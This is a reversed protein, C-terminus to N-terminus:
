VTAYPPPPCESTMARAIRSLNAIDRAYIDEVADSAHGTISRLDERQVGNEKFWTIASGRLSHFSAKGAETDRIGLRKLTQSFTKSAYHASYQNATFNKYIPQGPECEGLLPGIFAALEPMIPVCVWKKFRRTKGPEIVFVLRDFDFMEPTIRCCTELRQATWRSLMILVKMPMQSAELVRGIEEETLNRHTEREVVKRNVISALPSVTMGAEVLCCRFVTNLMSKQNGHTKGNGGAFMRDLYEQAIAPTVEDAYKVPCWGAFRKWERQHRASLDRKKLAVELMKDVRLAPKEKKIVLPKLPDPIFGPFRDRIKQSVKQAARVAMFQDHLEQAVKKDKTGLSMSTVRGEANRYVVYWTNKKLRLM